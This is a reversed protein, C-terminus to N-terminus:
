QNRLIVYDHLLKGEPSIIFVGSVYDAKSNSSYRIAYGEKVRCMNQYDFNNAPLSWLTKGTSVDISQLMNLSESNANTKTSIILNTQDQYNIKGDFIKKNESLTVTKEKDNQGVAIVKLLNHKDVKFPKAITSKKGMERVVNYDQTLVDQTPFYYYSLGDNSLVTWYENMRYTDVKAVGAALEPHNKFITNTLDILQNNDRDLKYIFPGTHIVYIAQDSGEYFRVDHTDLRRTRSFLVDDKIITKNIPDIFVAHTNVFDYNGNEERINERGIRLLVAKETKANAYVFDKSTTFDYKEKEAAFNSQKSGGSPSLLRFLIIISLIVFGGIILPISKKIDIPQVPASPNPTHNINVNIDDNDLFYETDCSTCVFYDPKIETKKVSGCNPCKIAKINKAM